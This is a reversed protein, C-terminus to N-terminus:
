TREQVGHSGDLKNRAYEKCGFFLPKLVEDISLPWDTLGNRDIGLTTCLQDLTKNHEEKTPPFRGSSHAFCDRLGKVICVHASAKRESPKLPVQFSQLLAYLRIVFNQSIWHGIENMKGIEGITLPESFQFALNFGQRVYYPATQVATAGACEEGLAPFHARCNNFNKWLLDLAQNLEDLSKM